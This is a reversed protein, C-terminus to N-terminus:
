DEGPSLAEAIADEFGLRRGSALEPEAAPGLAARARELGREITQQEIPSMPIRLGERLALSAGTLRLARRMQGRAAAIRAFGELGALVEGRVDLERAVDVAQRFHSEARELSGREVAIEGALRRTRALALTDGVERAIRSSEDLRREAEDLDGMHILVASSARLMMGVDALSGHGRLIALAEGLRRGAEDLDGKEAAIEGLTAGAWAIKNWDGIEDALALSEESVEQARDYDGESALMRGLAYLTRVLGQKDGLTRQISLAGDLFTQASEIDGQHHALNGALQLARAREAGNPSATDAALAADFWRRGETVYGRLAWYSNLACCLRVCSRAGDPDRLGRRLAARLNDHEAELRDLWEAATGGGIREKAREAFAVFWARHRGAIEDWEGEERLKESGYERITELMRYRADGDHEDRVVLSKDVLRSLLDLIDSPHLCKTGSSSPRTLANAEESEGKMGSEEDRGCIGEAADLTWGSAFIALRRFLVREDDDLLEHSWDLTARLTQHRPLRTRGGDKLLRFREDLRTRIQEITLVRLRAAALEIALPIGDLRRCVEAIAAAADETAVFGPRSLGAREVFLRTAAFEALREPGVSLDSDPAEMPPVLWVAEGQAFLPERSTALVTLGSSARLFTEVLRACAEGLHECNDLLLLTTRTALWQVVTAEASRGSDEQLGLARAVTQAVLSPDSLSALEVLWTGDAFAGGASGASAAAELALRTKGIGGPGVLTLLRASALYERVSALESERSVFSTLAQPLNGSPEPRPAHADLVTTAGGPSTHVRAPIARTAAPTTDLAAAFEAPTQFRHAPDKALARLAAAELAPDAGPALRSPPAPAADAHLRLLAALDDALFPPRGTLMEYLMCGLAYVDSREDAPFGRCQEPSMYVPTGVLAGPLTLSDGEDPGGHLRAIGFDLVKAIPRDGIPGGGPKELMVNDPKLDRHVIRAAHAAHVASCVQRMVHAAISASFRGRSRVDHRLTVGDVYEMAIYTGIDPSNGLDYVAVINPHKLRAVVLAERRFRKLATAGLQEVRVIKIAVPRDLQLQTGLYVEGMGGRGLFSEIRYREDLVTGSALSANAPPALLSRDIWITGSSVGGPLEAPGSLFGGADADAALISLVEARLADDDGCAGDVFAGREGPARELARDVVAFARELLDNM